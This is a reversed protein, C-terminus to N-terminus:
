ILLIAILVGGSLSVAIVPKKKEKIHKEMMDKEKILSNIFLDLFNLQLEYDQEGTYDPFRGILDKIENSLFSERKWEKMVENWIEVFQRERQERARKGVQYTYVGGIGYISRNMLCCIDELTDRQYKIHSQMKQFLLIWQKLEKLAQNWAAIKLLGYGCCGSVCLMVGAIKLM